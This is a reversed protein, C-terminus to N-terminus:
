IDQGRPSLQAVLGGDVYIIQGTIYSAEPSALFAVASAIDQPTGFRALPVRRTIENIAIAPNSAPPSKQGTRIAGPAIANVRIGFESLELAMTRTMADLAGKTMDYPLGWWHSRLGGVSSINIINGGKAAARMIEAARYSCLYPGRINSALQDDLLKEDVEFFHFRKLNAANNVLLDLRGYAALTMEFLRDVTETQGLDGPVALAAAGLRHFEATTAAVEAPDLGTIVVRMGELALRRAIGKGIGRSSGTVVAVQGKFEPYRLPIGQSDAETEVRDDPIDM